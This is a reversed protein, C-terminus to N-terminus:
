SGTLALHGAILQPCAPQPLVKLVANSGAAGVARVRILDCRDVSTQQLVTRFAGSSSATVGRTRVSKQQGNESLGGGPPRERVIASHFWASVLHDDDATTESPELGDQPESVCGDVDREDIPPIEMQELREGVLDRGTRERGALDGIRQAGDELAIAVDAHQHGLDGVEIEVLTLQV